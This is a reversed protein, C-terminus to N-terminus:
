RAGGAPICDVVAGLLRGDTTQPDGVMWARWADIGAATAASLVLARQRDQDLADWLHRVPPRSPDDALHEAVQRRQQEALAQATLQARPRYARAM